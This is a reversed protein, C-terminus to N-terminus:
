LDIWIRSYLIYMGVHGIFVVNLHEKRVKPQGPLKPRKVPKEVELDEEDEEMEDDDEAQEWDDALYLYNQYSNYLLFLTFVDQYDFVVIEPNNM